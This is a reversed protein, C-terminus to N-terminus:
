KYYLINAFGEFAINGIDRNYTKYQREVAEYPVNSRNVGSNIDNCVRQWAIKKDIDFVIAEKYTGSPLDKIFAKRKESDVNTADLVVNKGESLARCVRLKALEWVKANQSQDSINGTLEERISDPNVIVYNTLSKVYTSKGSGSIGVTMLFKPSKDEMETAGKNLIYNDIYDQDMRDCFSFTNLQEFYKKKRFEIKKKETMNRHFNHIRMHKVCVYYILNRDSYTGFFLYLYENLYKACYNEHGIAQLRGKAENFKTTDIKGLDHFLACVALDDSVKKALEYVIKTHNYVNGEPHYALHQETKILKDVIEKPFKNIEQEFTGLKSSM